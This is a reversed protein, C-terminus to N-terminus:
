SYKRVKFLNLLERRVQEYLPIKRPSEIRAYMKAGPQLDKGSTEIIATVLVTSKDLQEDKELVTVIEQITTTFSPLGPEPPNFKVIAGAKVLDRDEQRVEIVAVLQSPDAIELVAEGPQMTKGAIAYLDRSVVVGSVPARLWSNQEQRASRRELEQKVRNQIPQRRTLLVKASQVEQQATAVQAQLRQVEEQKLKLEDDLRRKATEMAARNEGIQAQLSSKQRQAESLREKSIAGENALYEFRGISEDLSSVTLQLSQIQSQYGQIHPPLVGSAMLQVERQLASVREQAFGLQQQAMTLRTQANFVQQNASETTALNEQLRLDWQGIDEVLPESEVLALPQNEVIPQNPVVLVEAIKGTVDMHVVQRANPDPELWAEARISPAVRIQSIAGLAVVIGAFIVWGYPFRKAAKQPSPSDVVKNEQQEPREAPSDTQPISEPTPIRFDNPRSPSDEPSLPSDKAVQSGQRLPLPDKSTPSSNAVRPPVVQFRRTKRASTPKLNSSTM